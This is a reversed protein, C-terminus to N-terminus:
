ALVEELAEGFDILRNIADELKKAFDADQTNRKVEQLVKKLRLLKASRLANLIVQKEYQTV